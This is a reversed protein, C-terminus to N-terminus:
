SVNRAEQQSTNELYAIASRLLSSNDHFLGLALNCKGCLLGRVSDTIHSHDVHFNKGFITKCIACKGNQQKILISIFDSDIGYAEKRRLVSTCEKCIASYGSRRDKSKCFFSSAKTQKCKICRLQKEISYDFQKNQLRNKQRYRLATVRGIRRCCDACVQDLGDKCISNKYFKEASKEQNCKSCIKTIVKQFGIRAYKEKTNQRERKKEEGFCKKCIFRLGDLNSPSAYFSDVSKTQGCRKCLKTNM